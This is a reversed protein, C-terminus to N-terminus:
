YTIMMVKDDDAVVPNILGLGWAKLWLGRPRALGLHLYHQLWYPTLAIKPVELWWLLMDDKMQNATHSKRNTNQLSM